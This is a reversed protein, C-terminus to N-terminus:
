VDEGALRLEQLTALMSIALHPNRYKIQEHSSQDRSYFDHDQPTESQELLRARACTIGVEEGKIIGRSLNFM